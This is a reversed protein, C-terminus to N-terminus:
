CIMRYAILVTIRIIVSIIITKHVYYYFKVNVKLTNNFRCLNCYIPM